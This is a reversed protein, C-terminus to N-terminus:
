GIEDKGSVTRALNMLKDGYEKEIKARCVCVCVCVAMVINGNYM